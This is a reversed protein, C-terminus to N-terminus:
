AKDNYEGIHHMNKDFERHINIQMKADIAKKLKDFDELKEFLKCCVFEGLKSFRSFGAFAIYVDALEELKKSRSQAENYETIEEEVKRRQKVITNKPFRYKNWNQIKQMDWDM